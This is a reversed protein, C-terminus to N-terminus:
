FFFGLGCMLSPFPPPRVSCGVLASVLCHIGFFFVWVVCCLRFHLQVFVVLFHREQADVKGKLVVFLNKKKCVSCLSKKKVFVVLFHREQADVKRKLVVLKKKERELPLM